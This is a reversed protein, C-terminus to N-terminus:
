REIKYHKQLKKLWPVVKENAVYVHAELAARQIDTLSLMQRTLKRRYQRSITPSPM